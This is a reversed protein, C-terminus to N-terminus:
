EQTYFHAKQITATSDCNKVQLEISISDNANGNIYYIKCPKTHTKSKGFDVDGEDFISSVVSTDIRNQQFFTMAEPSFNRQKLRINKLTRANPFYACSAKKGSLVFVLIAIGMIFGISFFGVRKLVTM